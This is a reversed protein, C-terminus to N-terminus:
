DGDRVFHDVVEEVDEAQIGGPFEEMVDEPDYALAALGPDNLITSMAEIKASLRRAVRSDITWRAELIDIKTEQDDPLGLRHIRDVSQLYHAANFTRDVYIAYHCAKHLSIGEGCAAPNAIMVRCDEDEHFQRIRGERTDPDEAAGTQVSGHLVVPDFDKLMKALVNINEIFSTWLLAKRDKAIALEASALDRAKVLKAPKEHRAFERILDHARLANPSEDVDDEEEDLVVGQVLLLPNTATELLRVVHRGLQRLYARDRQSMGSAKRKAESRLLEYLERQIPGLEVPVPNLELRPLKLDKKTTRVYLPMVRSQIDAIVDDYGVAPPRADPLIRQGPWLFEMQPRLDEPSQPLPTGSLIDRRVGSGSLTLAAASTVRPAGGKIRHSEDLVIHAKHQHAWQLVQRQVNVLLQYSIVCVEPDDTLAASVGAEGGELRRLKVDHGPFCARVEDEWALFANKPAVVLLRDAQGEVRLIEYTALVTTTKGAGPVSFNAGHRLALLRSLNIIQPKKLERLKNFRSNKLRREIEAEPIRTDVTASERARVEEVHKQLVARVEADYDADADHTELIVGIEGAFLRFTLTSVTYKGASTEGGNSMALHALDAALSPDDDPPRIEVTGWEAGQRFQVTAM